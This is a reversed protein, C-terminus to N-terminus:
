VRARSGSFKMWSLHPCYPVRHLSIEEPTFVEYLARTEGPWTAQNLDEFVLLSGVQLRPRLLKLLEVTPGYLGLGFNAMAVITEPHDDLYTGFAGALTGQFIVGRPVQGLPRNLDALALGRCLEEAGDDFKMGGQRKLGLDHGEAGQDVTDLGSFGEFSDFGVIKRTHNYPELISSLQLWTFFSSGRHIGFDFISGHVSIIESFIERRALFYSIAQRPAFRAFAFFKETYTGSSQSFYGEIQGFFAHEASNYNKPNSQDM